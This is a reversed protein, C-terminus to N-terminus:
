KVERNDDIDTQGNFKYHNTWTSNCEACFMDEWVSEADGDEDQRIISGSGCVPCTSGDGTITVCIM